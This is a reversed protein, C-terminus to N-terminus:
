ASGKGAGLHVRLPCGLENALFEPTGLSGFSTTWYTACARKWTEVKPTKRRKKKSEEGAIRVRPVPMRFPREMDSYPVFGLNKVLSEESHANLDWKLDYQQRPDHAPLLEIIEDAIVSA